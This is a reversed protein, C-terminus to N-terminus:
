ALPKDAPLVHADALDQHACEADRLLTPRLRRLVTDGFDKDAVTKLLISRALLPLRSRRTVTAVGDIMPAVVPLYSIQIISGSSYSPCPQALDMQWDRVSRKASTHKTEAM